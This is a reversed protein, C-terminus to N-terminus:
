KHPGWARSCWGLFAEKKCFVTARTSILANPVKCDRHLGMTPLLLILLVLPARLGPIRRASIRYAKRTRQFEGSTYITMQLIHFHQVFLQCPRFQFLHTNGNASPQVVDKLGDPDVPLFINFLVPCFCSGQELGLHPLVKERHLLLGLLPSFCDVYSLRFAVTEIKNSTLSPCNLIIVNQTGTKICLM